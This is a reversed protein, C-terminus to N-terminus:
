KTAAVDSFYLVREHTAFYLHLRRLVNLGVTLPAGCRNYYAADEPGHVVLDCGSPAARLTIKANTITIGSGTLSMARYHTIAYGAGDTETEVGPSSGDFGFLKRTVDTGLTTVPTGTSLTAWIKQGELEMPFGVPGPDYGRAIRASSYHDTWYVVVGPCHDTSYFNLKNNAFDLEFDEIGLLDMGLQGIFPAPDESPPHSDLFAILGPKRFAQSGVVLLDPLTAIASNSTGGFPGQVQFNHNQKLGFPKMYASSIVTSRAATNVEMTARHGNITVPVLVRDNVISLDASGTRKLRCQAASARGSVWVLNM